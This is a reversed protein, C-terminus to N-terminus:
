QPAAALVSITKVSYNGTTPDQVAVIHVDDDVAVSALQAATAGLPYEDGADDAVVLSTADIEDVTADFEVTCDPTDCGPLEDLTTLTYVGTAASQTGAIHVFDGIFVDDTSITGPNATLAAGGNLPAVTVAGSDDDIATVSGTVDFSCDSRACGVNSPSSPTTGTGPTGGGSDVPTFRVTFHIFAGVKPHRGKPLLLLSSDGLRLALEKGSRVVVGFVVVHDVRGVVVIRFARHGVSSFSIKAGATVGSPISGRYSADQVRQGEVIHLVHKESSVSLVVGSERVSASAPATIATSTISALSLVLLFTLHRV